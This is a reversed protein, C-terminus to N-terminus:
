AELRQGARLTAKIDNEEKREAKDSLIRINANDIKNNSLAFTFIFKINDLTTKCNIIIRFLM